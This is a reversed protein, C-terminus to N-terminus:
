LAPINSLWVVTGHTYDPRENFPKKRNNYIIKFKKIEFSDCSQAGRFLCFTFQRHLGEFHKSMNTRYILKQGLGVERLPNNKRRM